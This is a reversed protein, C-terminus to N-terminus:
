QGPIHFQDPGDASQGSATDVPPFMPSSSPEAAPMPPLETTQAVPEAPADLPPLSPLQGLESVAPMPPPPPPPLSIGSTDIPPQNIMTPINQEVPAAPPVFSEAPAPVPPLEPLSTAMGDVPAIDSLPQIVTHKEEEPSDGLPQVTAHADAPLVNSDFNVSPPEEPVMAGSIPNGMASGVYPTGHSLASEIPPLNGNDINGSNEPANLNEAANNNTANEVEARLNDLSNQASDNNKVLKDLEAEAEATADAADETYPRSPVPEGPRTPPVTTGRDTEPNINGHGIEIEGAFGDAPVKKDSPASESVGGDTAIPAEQAASLESAILQQNAGKAMLDAALKMVNSSTKENRFQDTAAVVGTLLATAIQEDILSKGNGGLDEALEAVMESFSGQDNQWSITGLVDRELGINITAVTASHLIKGHAAIAEDLDEKKDVGVAIVLEVNFDGESFALDEATIKTKYPTIFVKVLDGDVKYRLRDAKAKDLSIIFDRLSDANSEFTEEPQLFNIAPPIRGSFVATAHKTMKDLLFTLGLAAALEDVSPDHSVTVLINSVSAIKDALRLKPAKENNM